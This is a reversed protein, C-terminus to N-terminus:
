GPQGQGPGCPRCSFISGTEVHKRKSLNHSKSASRFESKLFGFLHLDVALSLKGIEEDSHTKIHGDLGKAAGYVFGCIDCKHQKKLEHVKKHKEYFEELKFTRPCKDCAFSYGEPPNM